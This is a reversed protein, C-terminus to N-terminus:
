DCPRCQTAVHAVEGAVNKWYVDGTGGAGSSAGGTGPHGSEGTTGGTGLGGTGGRGGEAGTSGSSSCGSAQTLVSAFGISLVLLVPMRLQPGFSCFKRIVIM